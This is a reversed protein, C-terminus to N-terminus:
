REERERERNSYPSLIDSVTCCLNSGKPLTVGNLGGLRSVAFVRRRNQPIGFDKANLIGYITDYGLCNLFRVWNEFDGIFKHSLLNSVNEMVLWEPLSDHKKDELLLRKVQLLLGSQTGNVIGRMKGANSIDTCPFSYTWLDAKNLKKVKSIDGYNYKKGHIASYSKVADKDIESVGVVEYDVGLNDLAKVQAGIGSFLENITLHRM